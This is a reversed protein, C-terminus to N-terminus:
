GSHFGEAFKDRALRHADRWPVLAIPVPSEPDLQAALQDLRREADAVTLRHERVEAGLHRALGALKHRHAEVRAAREEGLKAM